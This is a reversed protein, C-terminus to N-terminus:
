LPGCVTRSGGAHSAPVGSAEAVRYTAARHDRKRRARLVVAQVAEDRMRRFNYAGSPEDPMPLLRKVMGRGHPRSGQQRSRRVTYTVHRIPALVKSITSSTARSRFRSEFEGRQPEPRANPVTLGNMPM